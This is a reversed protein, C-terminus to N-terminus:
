PRKQDGDRTATWPMDGVNSTLRGSLSGDTEMKGTATLEILLDGGSSKGALTIAGHDFEGKLAIPGHPSELTGEVKTGNQTLVMGFSMEPVAMVWKGSVNKEDARLASASVALTIILILRM